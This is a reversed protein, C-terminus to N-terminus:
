AAHRENDNDIVPKPSDLVPSASTIEIKRPRLAEPVERVLDIALLGDSLQANAVKVHEALSFTQKFNRGAIGQHLIQRKESEAKRGTVVLSVGHQVIEVDAQAFGAVAMTIRYADEGTKEIDYPPWDPRISNEVLDFLRDYGVTSRYFPSIDFTKMAMNEKLLM